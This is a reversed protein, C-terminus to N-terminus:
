ELTGVELCDSVVGDQDGIGKAKLNGENGSAAGFRPSPPDEDEDEDPMTLYNEGKPNPMEKEYDPWM